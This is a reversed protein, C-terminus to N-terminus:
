HRVTFGRFEGTAAGRAVTREAVHGAMAGEVASVFADLEAPSGEAVCRVRGDSLNQVWGSVAFRAAVRCTTYRFGVGQVRGAFHVDYRVAGVPADGLGGGGGAAGGREAAGRRNRTV